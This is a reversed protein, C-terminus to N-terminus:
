PPTRSANIKHAIFDPIYVACLGQLVLEIAGSLHTVSFKNYRPANGQWGDRERIELYNHQLDQSPTAFPIESFESEQFIGKLHYCGSSFKGVEIIEIEENPFPIFTVGFDIQKKAVSKEMIHPDLDLLAISEANFLNQKLPAGVCLQFIFPLSIKTSTQQANKKIQFLRLEQELLEKAQKYFLFGDNTITIGSGSPRFLRLGVEEQLFKM